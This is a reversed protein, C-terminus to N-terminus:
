KGFAILPISALGGILVITMLWLVSYCGLCVKDVCTYIIISMTHFLILMTFYLLLDHHQIIINNKSLTSMIADGRDFTKKIPYQTESQVEEVSEMNVLRAVGCIPDQTEPQVEEVSEM